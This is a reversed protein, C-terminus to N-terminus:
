LARRSTTNYRGKLWLKLYPHVIKYYSTPDRMIYFERTDAVGIQAQKANNDIANSLWPNMNQKAINRKLLEVALEMTADNVSKPISNAGNRPFEYEQEPTTPYGDYEFSDIIRTAEELARLKVDELSDEWVDILINLGDSDFGWISTPLKKEYQLDGNAVTIYAM